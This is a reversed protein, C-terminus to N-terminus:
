GLQPAKDDGPRLCAPLEEGRLRAMLVPSVVQVRRALELPDVKESKPPEPDDTADLGDLRALRELLKLVFAGAKLGSDLTEKDPLNGSSGTAPNKIAAVPLWSELLQVCADRQLARRQQQSDRKKAPRSRHTSASSIRVDGEVAENEEPDTTSNRKM